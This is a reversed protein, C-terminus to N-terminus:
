NACASWQGLGQRRAVTEARNWELGKVTEEIMLTPIVFVNDTYGKWFKADYENHAYIGDSARIMNIFNIQDKM